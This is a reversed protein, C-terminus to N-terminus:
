RKSSNPGAPPSATCDPATLLVRLRHDTGLECGPLRGAVCSICRCWEDLGELMPLWAPGLVVTATVNKRGGCERCIHSLNVEAAKSRRLDVIVHSRKGGLGAKKIQPDSPNEVVLAEINDARAAQKIVELVRDIGLASSGFVVQATGSSGQAARDIRLRDAPLASRRCRRLRGSTAPGHHPQIGAAAGLATEADRLEKELRERTGLMQIINPSRLAWLEADHQQLIGLGQMEVLYREFENRSLEEPGFGDPGISANRM